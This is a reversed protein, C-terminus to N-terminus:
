RPTKATIHVHKVTMKRVAAPIPHPADTPTPKTAATTQETSMNIAGASQALLPPLM